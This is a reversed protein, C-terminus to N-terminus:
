LSNLSARDFTYTNLGSYPVLVLMFPICVTCTKDVLGCKMELSNLMSQNSKTDAVNLM